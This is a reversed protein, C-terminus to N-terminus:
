GRRWIKYRAVLGNISKSHEEAMRYEKSGDDFERILCTENVVTVEWWTGDHRYIDGENRMGKLSMGSLLKFM